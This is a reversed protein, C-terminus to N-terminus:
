PWGTEEAPDSQSHQRQQGDVTHYISCLRSGPADGCGSVQVLLPRVVIVCPTANDHSVVARQQVLILLVAIHARLMHMDRSQSCLLKQMETQSSVDARSVPHAPHQVDVPLFLSGNLGQLVATENQACVM